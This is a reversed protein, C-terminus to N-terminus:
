YIDGISYFEERSLTAEMETVIKEIAEWNPNPHAVMESLVKAMTTGTAEELVNDIREKLNELYITNSEHSM